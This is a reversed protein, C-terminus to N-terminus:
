DRRRNRLRPVAEARKGGPRGAASLDDSLLYIKNTMATQIGLVDINDTLITMRTGIRDLVPQHIESFSVSVPNLAATKLGQEEGLRRPGADPLIAWLAFQSTSGESTTIALYKQTLPAVAIDALNGAVGAEVPLRLNSEGIKGTNPDVEKWTLGGEEIQIGILLLPADTGLWQYAWKGAEMKERIRPGDFEERIDFVQLENDRQCAIWFGDPSIRVNKANDFRGLEAPPEASVDMIRCLGGVDYSIALRDNSLSLHQVSIKRRAILTVYNLDADVLHFGVDDLVIAQQGFVRVDRANAFKVQRANEDKAGSEDFRELSQSFLVYQSGGLGTPRVNRLRNGSGRGTNARRIEQVRESSKNVLYFRRNSKTVMLDGGDWAILDVHRDDIKQKAVAQQWGGNSLKWNEIWTERDVGLKHFHLVMERSDASFGVFAPDGVRYRNTKSALRLTQSVQDPLVEFVEAIYEGSANRRAVERVVALWNGDPSLSLRKIRGLQTSDSEVEIPQFVSGGSRSWFLIENEDTPDTSFFFGHHPQCALLPLFEADVVGGRTADTLGLESSPSETTREIKTSFLQGDSQLLVFRDGVMGFSDFAGFASDFSGVPPAISLSAGAADGSSIQQGGERSEMAAPNFYTVQGDATGYATAPVDTPEFHQDVAGCLVSSSGNLRLAGGQKTKSNADSAQRKDIAADHRTGSPNWVRVYGEAGGSALQFGQPGDLNAVSVSTLADPQGVLRKIFNLKDDFVIM